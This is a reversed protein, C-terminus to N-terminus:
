EPEKMLNWEQQEEPTLSSEYLTELEQDSLYAAGAERTSAHLERLQAITLLSM